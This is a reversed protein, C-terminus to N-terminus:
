RRLKANPFHQATFDASPGFAPDYPYKLWMGDWLGTEPDQKCCWRCGKVPGKQGNCWVHHENPPMPELEPGTYSTKRLEVTHQCADCWRTASMCKEDAAPIIGNEGCTECRGEWITRTREAM